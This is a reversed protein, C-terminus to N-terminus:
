PGRLPNRPLTVGPRAPRDLTIIVEGSVRVMQGTAADTFVYGDSAGENLVTGTTVWEGIMVGGSYVKIRHPDGFAMVRSVEADTCGAAALAMLAVIWVAGM